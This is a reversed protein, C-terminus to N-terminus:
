VLAGPVLTELDLGLKLGAAAALKALHSANSELGFVAHVARGYLSHMGEADGARLAEALDRPTPWAETERQSLTDRPFLLPHHPPCDVYLFSSFVTYLSQKDLHLREYASNTAGKVM